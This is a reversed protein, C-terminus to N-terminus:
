APIPEKAPEAPAPTPTAPISPEAPHEIPEVVVRRLPEGIEAAKIAHEYIALIVPMPNDAQDNVDVVAEGYFEYTVKDLTKRAFQYAAFSADGYNDLHGHMAMGIAGVACVKGRKNRLGGQAGGHERYYDRAKVLIALTEQNDM